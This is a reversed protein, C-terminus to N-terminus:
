TTIMSVIQYTAFSAGYALATMYSLQFLAWKWSGTERRTVALTPLCQMALVYFMLLSMCTATSFLLTGDSRRTQRLRDYFTDTDDEAVEEGVGYVVALTSVIVERAAFSCVVGVGIQWDFGLPRVVPEILKGMQGAYSHELSYQGELVNAQYKLTKAESDKGQITLQKVQQHMQVVQPPPASTPFTALVWLAISILLIVTGAKKVFIKARDYTILFATRFSPIKYSPLEMVLPKSQGSLITRKFVFACVLVAIIGLSYAATFLLAAKVPEDGFLLATVMAYVPLRASCTLLPLTLITVLRDRKDEIGRTAMIGPIACAHASLMTIFAKGPLGVHRMLRDMVFVARSLYGTDELLSLCFFLICIQPLFVVVGGIGGIIGDVILSHLHGQPIYSGVFHQAWGFGAEVLDMPISALSFILYFVGVMIAFFGVLGAVPHTLIRDIRDTRRGVAM